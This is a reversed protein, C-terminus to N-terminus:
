AITYVGRVLLTVTDNALVGRDSDTTLYLHNRELPSNGSLEGGSTMDVLGPLATAVCVANGSRLMIECGAEPLLTYGAELTVVAFGVTESSSSSSGGLKNIKRTIEKTYAEIQEELAKELVEQRDATQAKVQEVVQPMFQDTLYGLTVLPDEKTGQAALTFVLVASLLGLLAM